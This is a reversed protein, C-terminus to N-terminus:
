PTQPELGSKRLVEDLFSSKLDRSLIEMFLEDHYNGDVLCGGTRRGSIRFGAKQYCSIAPKNFEFVKLMINNLNLMRFGYEVILQVAETGYGKNRHSEEGIFLGMGATRNIHDIEFLSCNGILEDGDMLVIAYLHGQKVLDQLFEKESKVSYISHAAGLGISLSLDNVWKTYAKVDEEDDPNLPSLYVKEGAIKKFYKM